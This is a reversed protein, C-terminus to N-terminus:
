RKGEMKGENEKGDQFRQIEGDIIDWFYTIYGQVFIRMEKTM